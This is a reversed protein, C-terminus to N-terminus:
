SWDDNGRRNTDAARDKVRMAPEAYGAVILLTALKPGVEDEPDLGAEKEAVAKGALHEPGPRGTM